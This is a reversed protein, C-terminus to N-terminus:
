PHEIDVTRMEAYLGRRAVGSMLEGTVCPMVCASINRAIAHMYKTKYRNTWFRSETTQAFRECITANANCSTRGAIPSTLLRHPKLIGTRRVAIAHIQKPAALANRVQVQVAACFAMSSSRMLDAFKKENQMATHAVAHMRQMGVVVAILASMASQTTDNASSKHAGCLPPSASSGSLESHNAFLRKLLRPDYTSKTLPIISPTKAPRKTARSLLPTMGGAM